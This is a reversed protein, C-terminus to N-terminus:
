VQRAMELPIGIKAATIAAAIEPVRSTLEELRQAPLIVVAM